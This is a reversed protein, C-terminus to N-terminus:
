ETDGGQRYASQYYSYGYKKNNSELLDPVKALIPFNYNQLVYDEDHITNDLLSVIVLIAAAILAGMLFGVATYKTISPSVKGLDVVASDVVEMSTGEVIETVRQPLVVSIGNAIKAAEYPDTTVVEVKMVETENVSSAKIMGYLQSWSYDVGTEEIIRELTTRNKLLVSYTKVLSQSATIDAYSMSFGVDNLSISNNNVYLMVSSSYMPDIVFNAISFGCGGAIIGALIIIWLRHLVSRIIHLFDIVYYEKSMNQNSSNEM